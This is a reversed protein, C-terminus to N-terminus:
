YCNHIYKEAEMRAVPGAMECKRIEDHWCDSMACVVTRLHRKKEHNTRDRSITVNSQLCEIHVIRQMPNFESFLKLYAVVVEKWIKVQEGVFDDEM